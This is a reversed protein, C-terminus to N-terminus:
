LGVRTNLDRDVKSMEREFVEQYYLIRVEPDDLGHGFRRNPDDYIRSVPLEHVTLGRKAVQVWFQLPIAYGAEDLDLKALASVNYAKFGCFADTISLGLRKNILATISQNIKKRDAPAQGNGAVELLYRSGSVVDWNKVDEFFTPIWEPKHQGDSDMTIAYDYRAAIVEKFGRALTIGYGQNIKNSIVKIKESELYKLVCPSCDSSGDDIFLVDGSHIQTLRELLGEVHQEENYVPVIVVNRSM